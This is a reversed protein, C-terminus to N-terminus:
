DVIRVPTGIAAAEYVRGMDHNDLAICGRTWDRVAPQEPARGHIYIEGGLRTKQPPMRGNRVAEVIQRHEEEGILGAALGREADEENPYSICLSLHYKSRPNKACVYFDGVPTAEDGERAKDIAWRRGLDVSYELVSGGPLTLLLRRRTKYVVISAGNSL